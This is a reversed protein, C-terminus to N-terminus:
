PDLDSGKRFTSTMDLTSLFSTMMTTTMIIRRRAPTYLEQEEPPLLPTLEDAQAM